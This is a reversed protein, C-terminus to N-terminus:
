VLPWIAAVFQSMALPRHVSASGRGRGLRRGDPAPLGPDSRTGLPYATDVPCIRGPQPAISRGPVADPDASRFRRSLSGAHPRVGHLARSRVTRRDLPQGRPHSALGELPERNPHHGRGPDPGRSQLLPNEQHIGRVVRLGRTSLPRDRAQRLYRQRRLGRGRFRHPRIYRDALRVVDAMTSGGFGRHIVPHPHMDRELTEWLRISSSGTFLVSDDPYDHSRDLAEFALMEAEWREVAEASVSRTALTGVCTGAPVAVLGELLLRRRNVSSRSPVNM